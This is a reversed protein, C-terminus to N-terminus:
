VPARPGSRGRRLCPWRAVAPASIPRPLRFRRVIGAPSPTAVARTGLGSTRVPRASPM